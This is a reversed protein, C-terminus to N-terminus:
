KAIEATIRDHIERVEQASRAGIVFIGRSTKLVICPKNGTYTYRTYTGLESNHFTGLLLKASGYGYIREGDVGAERYEASEIDEYNLCLDNWFSAKVTISEDGLTTEISGTFMLPLLCILLTSLIVTVAIGAAKQNKPNLLERYGRKYDEKTARGDALQKRYFRYSYVTPLLATILIVTLAVFPFASSPLPIALLCLFGSVVMLKGSFRHTANWNEDNALAWKIKIGMTRNRTIKPTYNGLVIFTIALILLITAFIGSTHGMATSLMIGCTMLSIAPVIWFTIAVIKKNNQQANKDLIVTLILCLWHLALLICPLIVFVSSPSMWGDANGDLGWHVVIEEPLLPAFFLLLTPLLIVISSLIARWKNQKIM